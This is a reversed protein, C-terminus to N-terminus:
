LANLRSTLNVFAAEKCPITLGGMPHDYGFEEEARSLLDQFSPHNLFSIPVVFRKKQNEGVYVAVHGKRVDATTGAQSLQNRTFLSQLKLIQKAHLAMSPLRIGMVTRPAFLVMQIEVKSASPSRHQKKQQVVMRSCNLHSTLNIFDDENCPITLGGMPHDFGFEEEARKLLDQFSPHNLYSIPVVFRKKQTEGVYVTFHGKPVTTTALVSFNRMLLSRRLIQKAHGIALFRIGM